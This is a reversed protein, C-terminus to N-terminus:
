STKNIETVLKNLEEQQKSDMSPIGLTSRIQEASVSKTKTEFEKKAESIAETAHNKDEGQLSTEAVDVFKEKFGLKVSANKSLFEFDGLYKAGSKKTFLDALVTFVTHGLNKLISTFFKNKTKTYVLSQDTDVGILYRNSQNAITDSFIETLPGGVALLTTPSGKSALRELTEKSTPVVKFGVNINIQSDTIKTKKDPHKENFAKIGALYGAIFDTVPAFIGGGVTIASRKDPDNPFKKAMFSANAYGALWGAEETKYTLSIFQGKPIVNDADVWDVGIIVIKKEIFSSKNESNKMWNIFHEGHQFGSLVWVNKNTNILASYNTNLQDVASDVSTIEGGTIASLQQVAEWSSQNFSNDNVTGAATVIAMNMAFHKSEDAKATTIESKRSDVVGSIKSVDTIKKAQTDGTGPTQKQDNGPKQVEDSKEGCAAAIGMVWVPSLLGLGLFKNWKIKKKM